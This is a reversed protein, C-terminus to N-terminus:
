RPTGDGRWGGREPKRGPPDESCGALAQRLIRLIAGPGTLGRVVRVAGAEAARRSAEKSGRLATAVVPIGNRQIRATARMPDLGRTGVEIVVLDSRLPRGERFAAALSGAGGAYALDPEPALLARYGHRVIPSGEIVYIPRGPM